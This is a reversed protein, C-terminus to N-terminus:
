KKGNILREVGDFFEQVHNKLSQELIAYKKGKALELWYGYNMQHMIVIELIHTNQWAAEGKLQQRANGTRDTWKANAKAYAEMQMAASHAIIQLGTQIWTQHKQLDRCFAEISSKDFVMDKKRGM